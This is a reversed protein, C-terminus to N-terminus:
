PHEKRLILIWEHDRAPTARPDTGYWALVRSRYRTFAALFGRETRYHREVAPTSQSHREVVPVIM